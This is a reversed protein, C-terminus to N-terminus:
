SGVQLDGEMEGVVKGLIVIGGQDWKLTGSHEGELGIQGLDIVHSRGEVPTDQSRIVLDARDDSFSIHLEAFDLKSVVVDTPVSLVLQFSVETSIIASSQWFGAKVEM